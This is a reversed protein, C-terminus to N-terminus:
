NGKLEDIRTQVDNMLDEIDELKEEWEDHEGSEEDPEDNELDDYDDELDEYYDELEELTMENIDVDCRLVKVDVQGDNEKSFTFKIKVSDGEMKGDKVGAVKLLEEISGTEDCRELIKTLEKIDM